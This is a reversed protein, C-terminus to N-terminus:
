RGSDASLTQTASLVQLSASGTENAGASRATINSSVQQTGQAASQVNRSIEQTAAGQAEVAAAITSSIVALKEIIGFIKKIANVPDQTAPQIGKIQQGIEGTAEATQEALPM